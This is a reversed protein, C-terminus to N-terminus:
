AITSRVGDARWAADAAAIGIGVTDPFEAALRRGFPDDLNAIRAAPLLDAFLRRKAAFYAEMDPHFDLHDQTLNTFVAAAFHIGDVRRLELAHSSVEMACAADGGALM